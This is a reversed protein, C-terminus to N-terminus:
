QLLIILANILLIKIKFHVFPTKEPRCSGYFLHGLENEVQVWESCNSGGMKGGRIQQHPLKYLARKIKTKSPNHVSM